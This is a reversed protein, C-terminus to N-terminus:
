GEEAAVEEWTRGTAVSEPREATIDGGRVAHEDRMKVLLWRKPGTRTLAFAGRLKEGHLVFSLHGDDLDGGRREWTGRDWQIVAGTGGGMGVVGEFPGYAPSHDEVPVALRKQGPDLSPGKPVAWSKLVGDVELRLDYHLTTADHQQVVFAPM